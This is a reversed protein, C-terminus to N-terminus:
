SLTSLNNDTSTLPSYCTIISSTAKGKQHVKERARVRRVVEYILSFFLAVGLGVSAYRLAKRFTPSSIDLLGGTPAEEDKTSNSTQFGFSTWCFSWMRM